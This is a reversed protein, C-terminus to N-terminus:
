RVFATNGQTPTGPPDVILASVTTSLGTVPNTITDGVQSSATQALVHGPSLALLVPGLCSAVISRRVFSRVTTRASSGQIEASNMKTSREQSSHHGAVSAGCLNDAM